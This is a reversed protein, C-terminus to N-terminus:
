KPPAFVFRADDITPNVQPEFTTTTRSADSGTGEAGDEFVRRVLLTQADIWVAMKRVNAVHGSARYVSRGVGTLKYCPHGNIADTGALVADGFETLSGTLDAQPFLWPALQLLANLTPQSGALFAGGGQGKPYTEAVGTAQWWTHFAEDDAWVVFRDAKEAKVFDFLFHRPARFLTRFTHHERLIGNAPGYETDVSGTDAYSHLAAYAAQSRALIEQASAPGQTPPLWALWACIGAAVLADLTTM